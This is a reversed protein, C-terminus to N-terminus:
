FRYRWGLSIIYAYLDTYRSFWDPTPTRRHYFNLNALFAADDRSLLNVLPVNKLLSSQIEAELLLENSVCSNLKSDVTMYAEPAAYDPKFFSARSQIYHRLGFGMTLSKDMFHRRVTAQLTHSRVDWDDRYYRYGLQLSSMSTLKFNFRTGVANRVRRDPVSSEYTKFKSGQIIRVPQYPDSLFVKNVTYSADVQAIARTSLIQTFGGSLSIVDKNRTWTRTDPFVRDWSRVAGFQFVTNKKAFPYSIQGALTRSSYDHETSVLGNISASGKGLTQTLGAGMEHRVEDFTNEPQSGGTRSTASTVGDIGGGPQPGIGNPSTASTVGDVGFRSRMSAATIADVLYRGNFSTSPGIKKKLSLSPYLIHVNFNDFYGNFNVQLENDPTEQGILSVSLLFISLIIKRLDGV